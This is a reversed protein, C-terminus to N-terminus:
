ITKLYILILLFFLEWDNAIAPSFMEDEKGPKWVSCMSAFSSSGM